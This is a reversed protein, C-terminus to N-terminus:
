YREEVRAIIDDIDWYPILAHTTLEKIVDEPVDVIEVTGSDFCYTGESHKGLEDCWYLEKEWIRELQENTATFLFSLEGWGYDQNFAYLQAKDEM